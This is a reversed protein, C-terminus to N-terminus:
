CCYYWAAGICPAPTVQSWTNRSRISRPCYTGVAYYGSRIGDAPLTARHV